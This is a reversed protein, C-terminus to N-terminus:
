AAFEYRIASLADRIDQTSRFIALITPDDVALANGRDVDLQSTLGQRFAILLSTELAAGRLRMIRENVSNWQMAFSKMDMKISRATQVGASSPSGYYTIALKFLPDVMAGLREVDAVLLKNKAQNKDSWRKFVFAGGTKLAQWLVGGSVLGTLFGLDIGLDM